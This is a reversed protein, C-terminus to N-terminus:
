ARWGIWTGTVPSGQNTWLMGWKSTVTFAYEGSDVLGVAVPNSSTFGGPFEHWGHGGGGLDWWDYFLHGDTRTVTIMSRNGSASGQPAVSSQIGMSRWGIFTGGLTGQNLYINNGGGHVYAFLYNGGVLSGAPAADSGGNGPLEQFPTAGGGFDWWSYYIRGNTGTVLAVTRNGNSAAGPGVKSNIGAFRWGAFSGGPTGQNIWIGGDTSKVVVFLYDGYAVLSAAPSADSRITGPIERWGNAGGGLDWWDYYLHGDAGTLVV